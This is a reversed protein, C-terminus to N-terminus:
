KLSPLSRQVLSPVGCPVPGAVASRLRKGRTGTPMEMAPLVIKAVSKLPDWFSVQAVVVASSAGATGSPTLEDVNTSTAPRAINKEPVDNHILSPVGLPVYATASTPPPLAFVM